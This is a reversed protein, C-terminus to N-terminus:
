ETLAAVIRDFQMFHSAKVLVVDGPRVAATIAPIAEEVTGFLLIDADPRVSRIGEAINKALDGALIFSDVAMGGAAEGVERHLAAENEGLEGM